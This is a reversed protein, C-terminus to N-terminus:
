AECFLNRLEKNLDERRPDLGYEENGLKIKKYGNSKEATEEVPQRQDRVRQRKIREIVPERKKAVYKEYRTEASKPQYRELYESSQVAWYPSSSDSALNNYSINSTSGDPSSPLLTETTESACFPDEAPDPIHYKPFGHSFYSTTESRPMSPRRAPYPTRTPKSGSDHPIYISQRHVVDGIVCKRGPDTSSTVSDKRTAKSTGPVNIPAATPATSFVKPTTETPPPASPDEENIEPPCYAAVSTSRGDLREMEHTHPYMESSKAKQRESRERHVNNPLLSMWKPLPKTKSLKFAQSGIPDLVSVYINAQSDEKTQSFDTTENESRDNEDDANGDESIGM